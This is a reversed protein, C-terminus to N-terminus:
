DKRSREEGTREEEARDDADELSEGEDEAAGVVSRDGEEM